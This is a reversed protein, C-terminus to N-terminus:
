IWEPLIQLLTAARNKWTHHKLVKEKGCISIEELKLPNRLLDEVKEYLDGWKGYTYTLLEKDSVFHQDIFCNKGTVICAGAAAGYFIREHSGHKLRPNSNLLIKTRRMIRITEGFSIAPFIKLSSQNPLLDAWGKKGIKDGYLAIPLGNLSQILELRDKGRIYLDLEGFLELFLPEYPVVGMQVLAKFCSPGCPSLVLEAAQLLLSGYKFERWRAEIEEIDIATGFFVIDLPRDLASTRIEEGAHPLFLVKKCGFEKLLEADEMDASTVCCFPGKAQHTYYLFPDVLFSIHPIQWMEGIPVGAANIDAFSCTVDPPDNFVKLLTEHQRGEELSLLRVEAGQEQLANKLSLAFLQNSQYPNDCFFLDIKLM